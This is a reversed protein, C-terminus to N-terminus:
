MQTEAIEIAGMETRLLYSCLTEKGTLQPLSRVLNLCLGRVRHFEQNIRLVHEEAGLKLYKNRWRQRPMM